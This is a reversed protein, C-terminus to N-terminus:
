RDLDAYREGCRQFDTCLSDNTNQDSGQCPHVASWRDGCLENFHLKAKTFLIDDTGTNTIDLTLTKSGECADLTGFDLSTANQTTTITRVRVEISSTDKCGNVDTVIVQYTTTVTPTAIPQAVTPSSLGTVPTWDYVYGSSGTAVNGIIQGAGSCIAINTGAQVDPKSYVTIKVTDRKICVKSDSVAVIYDTTVSPKVNIQPSTSAGIIGALPTWSYTLTGTGGSAINGITIQNDLCISVDMGANVSPMPNVTVLVTDKVPCNKTDNVTLIYQTTTTPTAVPQLITANSLGTTPAWSYSLTGTGGTATANLTTSSGSCIEKDASANVTAVPNVTVNVTDRKFCGKSDTVFLIYQTTTTPSAVPSLVSASSLGAAPTWAYTFTPTGGSVTTTLTVSQGNCIEQDSGANLTIAPNVNVLVTDRSECGKTDTVTLIYQQNVTPTITPSLVTASSLGTTPTWAYTLTGTGGTATSTLTIAGTGVCYEKDSGCNVTIPNTSVTISQTNSCGTVSNTTTVTYTGSGVNISTATSGTSWTLTSYQGCTVSLTSTGGPCIVAPSAQLNVFPKTGLRAVFVDGSGASTLDVCFPFSLANSFQGCIYINGGADINLATTQDYGTGGLKTVNAITGSTSIQAMVIDYSGSSTLTTSGYTATGTFIGSIYCVNSADFAIGGDKFDDSTGGGRLAWQWNGNNDLKAMFMDYGGASTLTTSGFTGTGQFIGGIYVNNNNDLMIKNSYDDGTGGFKVAWQWAGSNDLKAIYGDDTSTSNGTLTTSGFTATNGQFKGAVYINGSADLTLSMGDDYQPGGGKIAWQWVGSTNLKAIYMDTGNSTLTTSGFTANGGGYGYTGTIYVNASADVAIGRFGYDNGGGGARVAWQFAGSSNVKVVFIDAAGASNLTTGGFTSSGSEWYGLLYLNANNDIALGYARDHSGGGGRIAWVVNGATDYKAIFADRAGASNLTTSGFTASGEFVGAVYVNGSADRVLQNAEDATTGGARKAWSDLCQGSGVSLSALLVVIAVAWSSLQSDLAFKNVLQLFYKM